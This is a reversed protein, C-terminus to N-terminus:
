YIGYLNKWSKCQRAFTIVVVLSMVMLMAVMVVIIKRNM